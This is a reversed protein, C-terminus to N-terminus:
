QKNTKSLLFICELSESSALCGQLHNMLQCEANIGTKKFNKWWWLAPLIANTIGESFICRKIQVTHYITLVKSTLSCNNM